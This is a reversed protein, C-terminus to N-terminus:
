PREGREMRGVMEDVRRATNTLIFGLVLGKDTPKRVVREIIMTGDLWPHDLVDTVPRSVITEMTDAPMGPTATELASLTDRIMVWDGSKDIRMSFGGHGCEPVFSCGGTGIGSQEAVDPLIGWANIDVMNVIQSAGRAPGLADYLARAAWVDFTEIARHPADDHALSTIM